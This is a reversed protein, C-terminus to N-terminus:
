TIHPIMAKAPRTASSPRSRPRWSITGPSVRLSSVVTAWRSSHGWRGALARSPTEAPREPTSGRRPGVNPGSAHRLRLDPTPAVRGHRPARLRSHGIVVNMVRYSVVPVPTRSATLSRISMSPSGRGGTTPGHRLPGSRGARVRGAQGPCPRGPRADNAAGVQVLQREPDGADILPVARRHVREIRGPHRASRRAARGDGDGGVFGIDGVAAVRTARHPDRRCAAARGPQLRRPATDREVPDPRQRGAEVGDPRHGAVDRSQDRSHLQELRAEGHGLEAVTRTPRSGTSASGAIVAAMSRASISVPQSQGSSGSGPHSSDRGCAPRSRTTSAQCVSRASTASSGSPMPSPTASAARARRRGEVVGRNARAQAVWRSSVAASSRANSSTSKRTVGVSVM